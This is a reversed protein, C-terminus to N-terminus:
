MPNRRHVYIYYISTSTISSFIHYFMANVVFKFEFVLLLPFIVYIVVYLRTKTGLCISPAASMVRMCVWCGLCIFLGSRMGKM